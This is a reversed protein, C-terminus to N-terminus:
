TRARIVRAPVGAVIVDPPVDSTVVSGAAIVAGRGITVGPLITANAGIWVDDGIMVGLKDTRSPQETIPIGPVFSHNSGIISVGQSILCKSGIRTIGAVRINNLEGFYTDDGVILVAGDEACTVYDPEISIVTYAGITVHKGFELRCHKRIHIVARPDIRCFEFRSAIRELVFRDRALRLQNILMGKLMKIM